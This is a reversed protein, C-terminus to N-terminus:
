DDYGGYGGLAEVLQEEVVYAVSLTERIHGRNTTRPDALLWENTAIQARLKVLETQVDDAQTRM